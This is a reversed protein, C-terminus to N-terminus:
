RKTVRIANIMALDVVSDFDVNLQGDGVRITFSRVVSRLKEGGAAVFIDFNDLVTQGELIVDFVRRGANDHFIEAFYLKVDYDGSPVEFQYGFADGFRVTQYVPMLGPTDVIIDQNTFWTDTYGVFGWGGATYARDALWLQATSDLYDTAAGCDVLFELSPKRVIPLYIISSGGPTRTPTPTPSPGATATATRTPTLTPTTVPLPQCHVDMTYSGSESGDVVIYFTVGQAISPVVVSGGSSFCAAPNASTLVFLALDAPTDLSIGLWDLKYRAQFSYVTEPGWMAAGCAGYDNIVSPHGATSGSYAEECAVPIPDQLNGGPTGRPTPSVTPTLTPMLTPTRTPTGTAVPTLTITATATSTATRPLTVTPTATAVPTLTITATATSTATSPLTVTPTATSTATPTPTRTPAATLTATTLPAFGFDLGTLRQGGALYFAYAGATPWTSGYGVPDEKTLLYSGQALDAFEYSGDGITVRRDLELHTSDRLIVTVGSMLSEGPDRQRNTNDDRWAVGSVVATTVIQTPTLTPTPIPTPSPTPTKTATPATTPTPTPVPVYYSVTLRPRFQGSVGGIQSSYLIWFQRDLPSLGLLIVGYNHAPDSVWRQVLDALPANHWEQWAPAARFRTVATYQSLRDASGECGVQQWNVDATARTWTAGSETWLRLVEYVGVDTNVSPYESYYAFLELSAETVVAQQPIHGALDFRLLIRDRTDYAVRLEAAGGYNTTEGSSSIYTDAVGSYAATPSTGQQFTITITQPASLEVGAGPARTAHDGASPGAAAHALLAREAGAPTFLCVLLLVMLMLVVSAGARLLHGVGSRRSQPCSDLVKDRRPQPRTVLTWEKM